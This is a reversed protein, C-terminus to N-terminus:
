AEWGCNMTRSKPYNMAIISMRPLRWTSPLVSLGMEERRSKERRDAPRHRPARHIDRPSGRAFFALSKGARHAQVQRELKRVTLLGTDDAMMARIRHFWATKQGIGLHRGLASSSLRKSSVALLYLATFWTRMPLHTDERPTGMAETFQANCAKCLHYHVRGCKITPGLPAIPWCLRAAPACHSKSGGLRLCRRRHHGAAFPSAHIIPPTLRRLTTIGWV